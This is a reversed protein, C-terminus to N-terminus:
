RWGPHRAPFCDPCGPSMDSAHTRCFGDAEDGRRIRLPPPRLKALAARGEPSDLEVYSGPAARCLELDAATLTVGGEAQHAARIARRLAKLHRLKGM